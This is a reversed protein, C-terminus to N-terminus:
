EGPGLRRDRRGFLLSNPDRQLQETFRKLAAVLDRLEIALATVEPLTEQGFRTLSHRGDQVAASAGDSARALNRAALEVADTGRRLSDLLPVLANSAKATNDMTVGANALAQDITGTRHAVASTITDLNALTKALAARNEPALVEALNGSLIEVKGLVTTVAIDLRELLSPATPIVAPRGKKSVLPEATRSGGTLEVYAIGTLGQTKLVAVTDRRIPVGRELFLRLEVQEPNDPALAINAVRGVDVGRYKVPAEPNLGSVSESMYALYTDYVKDNTGVALWLAVAVAALGLLLVFLGVVAYGVRNEM